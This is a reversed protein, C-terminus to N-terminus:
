SSTIHNTIRCGTPVTIKPYFSYSILMDFYESIIHKDNVKLLDINFDGTIIVEKINMEFNELIASFENIM